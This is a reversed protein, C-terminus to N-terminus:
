ATVDRRSFTIAAAGIAVVVYVGAVALGHDFSVNADANGNAAIASLSVGPFWKSASPLIRGVINEVAIMWAFGVIVSAVASRLFQGVVLGLVSYGVVALEMRGLAELLDTFGTGTYWASTSVGRSSAMLNAVGFAVVSAFATALVMFVLVAIMKGILLRVRRPQRVLLQRLTGLSYESATQAAAIGFAVIGLLMVARDVGVILGNPRALVDLSPLGGPGGHPGPVTHAPAQSFLLIVFASAAVALGGFTSLLLTMRKLKTWESSFAAWTMM